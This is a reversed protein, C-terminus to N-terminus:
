ISTTMRHIPECIPMRYLPLSFYKRTEGWVGKGDAAAHVDVDEWRTALGMDELHMASLKTYVDYFTANTAGLGNFFSFRSTQDSMLTGLHEFFEYLDSYDESFTDTYIIDFGGEDGLLTGIKEESVFDQWRGEFIEVGTKSYWGTSKMHELVDPHPEIIVHRSPPPDLSQFITDIIGLGFGVNLVTPGPVGKGKLSPCLARVTAEMIPREWGMMVGVQESGADVVVIEQGNEDTRYRLKSALFADTSGAATNDEARLTTLSTKSQLAHLMFESRLGADRILNYCETDNMSLAIDGASNGLEDVANWPSGAELLIEVCTRVDQEDRDDGAGDGGVAFHLPGWGSTPDQFWAPANGGLVALLEEDRASFVNEETEAATIEADELSTTPNDPPNHNTSASM